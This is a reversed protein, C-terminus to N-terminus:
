FAARGRHRTPISLGKAAIAGFVGSVLSIPLLLIPVGVFAEGLGGSSQWAQLTAADHWCALMVGTGASSVVGGLAGAVVAILIGTRIHTTRWTNWFAAAGFIAVITQSMMQSRPHMVGPTYAVPAFTDFLYRAILTAGIALGWFWSARLLFWGVQRVYWRDAKSGLAPVISERYEELLDGSVSERDEPRLLLRLLADAWFPPEEMVNDTTM